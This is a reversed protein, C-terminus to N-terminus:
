ERSEQTPFAVEASEQHFIKTPAVFAWKDTQHLTFRAQPRPAPPASAQLSHGPSLAPFPHSRRGSEGPSSGPPTSRGKGEPVECQSSFSGVKGLPKHRGWHDQRVRIHELCCPGLFGPQGPPNTDDHLGPSSGSFPLSAGHEDSTWSLVARALFNYLKFMTLYNASMDIM